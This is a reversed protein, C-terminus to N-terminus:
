TAIQQAITHMAKANTELLECAIFFSVSRSLIRAVSSSHVTIALATSGVV